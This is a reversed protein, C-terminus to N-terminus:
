MGGGDLLWAFLTIVFPIFIIAHTVIAAEGGWKRAVWDVLKNIALICLAIGAFLLVM